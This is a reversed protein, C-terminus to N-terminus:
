NIIVEKLKLIGDGKQQKYRNKEKGYEKISKMEQNIRKHVSM